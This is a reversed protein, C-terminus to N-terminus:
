SRMSRLRLFLDREAASLSTPLKAQVTIYLDGRNDPQNLRPMGQRTLRFMKSNPTEPPITLTLRKGDLTDIRVEGGLLMTYLDVAIQKHLNNGERTFERHPLLKVNLFLDGRRGSGLPRGEGAIRVRTGNDAGAPIKVRITRPMGSGDAIQLSRQTGTLAEELSIEISQEIDRTATQQEFGGGYSDGWMGGGTGAGFFAEFIDAFNGPGGGTQYGAGGYPSGRFGGADGVQEYRQWDAGFRDYKSRKEKDSLVEYAENIEKFRTEAQKNNPNVDPHYKRALRRYAQKIEQESANRGIGLVNYYDKM